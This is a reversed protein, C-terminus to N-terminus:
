SRFMMVDAEDLQMIDRDSCRLNFVRENRQNVNFAVDVFALLYTLLYISIKHVM